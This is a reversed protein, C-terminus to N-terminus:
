QIKIVSCRLMDRRLYQTHALLGTRNCHECKLITEDAWSHRFFRVWQSNISASRSCSFNDGPLLSLLSNIKRTQYTCVKITNECNRPLSERQYACLSSGQLSSPFINSTNDLWNIGFQCSNTDHSLRDLGLAFATWWHTATLKWAGFRWKWVSACVCSQRAIVNYDNYMCQPLERDTAVKKHCLM